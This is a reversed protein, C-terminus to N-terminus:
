NNHKHFTMLVSWVLKKKRLCSFSLSWDLWGLHFHIGNITLIKSKLFNKNPETCKSLCTFTKVSIEDMYKYICVCSIVGILCNTICLWMLEMSTDLAKWYVLIGIRVAIRKRTYWQSLHIFVINLCVVVILLFFFSRIYLSYYTM